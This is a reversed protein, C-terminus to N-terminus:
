KVKMGYVGVTNSYVIKDVADKSVGKFMDTLIQQSKPWTSDDHPYDSAWMLIDPGVAGLTMIGVEDTMFTCKVNRRFFDSPLLGSPFRPALRIGKREYAYDMRQLLYAVWGIDNEASLVKLRPFRELVMSFILMAISRQAAQTTCSYRALFVEKGRETPNTFAHLSIPVQAEQAAAWFPDYRTSSFSYEQPPEGWIAAGKLGMKLCRRLEMVGDEVSALPILGVGYLRDPHAACFEALWDNYVKFCALQLGPDPFSWFRMALSPYLVEAEVGDQRMEPIRANADWGGRQGEDFRHAISRQRYFPSFMPGIAQPDFGECLFLDDKEGKVLRPARERYAPEIREMWMDPPEVVHSDASVTRMTM